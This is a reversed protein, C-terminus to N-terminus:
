PASNREKQKLNRFIEFQREALERRGLRQYAQGLQYFINPDEPSLGAAAELHTAAEEAAGDALLIKGLLYRADALDPRAGLLIELQEKAEDSRRNLDLVTALHYRCAHDDPRSSLEGRLQQEAADLEGQRLYLEGLTARAEPVDPRLELARGLAAVAADYDGQKAHAQGLAVHLEPWTANRALLQDFVTQAERPRDARVLALGYAYQLSPNVELEHDDALLEVARASSGANLHALATMRKLAVNAPDQDLAASLPGTARDFREANFYATGLTYRVGPFDPAIEAAQEVLEAARAPRNAQLHLIGLNLTARALDATIRQALETRQEPALEEIWGVGLPPKLDDPEQEQELRDSLFRTLSDREGAVQKQSYTEAEAFHGAAESADGLRRLAVGLQYHIAALQRDKADGAALELARRLVTAAPAPQDLGLYCSGLFRRADIQTQEHRAASELSPVAEAFRRSALLATGLYLNIMPDEPALAKAREFHEIAPELADRGAALLKVTGLYYHGRRVTPDMEVAAEFAERAEQYHAFNGYSRGILLHTQPIPRADAVQDYLARARDIKGVRLYGTALTYAIEMDEPAFVRAEELEQVAEEYRREDVLAQALLRRAEIDERHRSTIRTLLAIAETAQGLQLHVLAQWHSARRTEIAATAAREFARQAATLDGDAVELAGRLLWGELLASRYRSEAIQVENERLSREAEAMARAMTSIADASGAALAHAAPRDSFLDFASLLLLVTFRKLM